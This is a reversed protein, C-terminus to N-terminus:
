KEKIKEFDRSPLEIFDGRIDVDQATSDTNELYFRLGNRVMEIKPFDFKLFADNLTVKDFVLDGDVRNTIKVTDLTSVDFTYKYALYMYETPVDIEISGTTNGSVTASVEWAFTEWGKRERYVAQYVDPLSVNM